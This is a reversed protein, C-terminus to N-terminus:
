IALAVWAGAAKQYVRQNVTGPTDGRFYFDGNAGNANNPAGTGAFMGCVAQLTANDQAFFLKGSTPNIQIGAGGQTITLLGTTAVNQVFWDAIGTQTLRLSLSSAAPQVCQLIGPRFTYVQVGLLTVGIRGAGATDLFFGTTPESSWSYDPAALTDAPGRLPFAAPLVSSAALGPFSLPM